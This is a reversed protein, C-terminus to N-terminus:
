ALRARYPIIPNNRKLNYKQTFYEFGCAGSCVITGVGMQVQKSQACERQRGLSRPGVQSLVVLLAHTTHPVCTRGLLVRTSDETGCDHLTNATRSSRSGRRRPRQWLGASSVRALPSHRGTSKNTRVVPFGRGRNRVGGVWVPFAGARRSSGLCSFGSLGSRLCCGAM